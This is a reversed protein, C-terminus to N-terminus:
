RLFINCVKINRDGQALQWDAPTNCNFLMTPPVAPYAAVTEQALWTQCARQGTALYDALSGLCRRRYFGCLPDWGKATPFLSAIAAAPVQDLQQQWRMLVSSELNPLDCALLLVWDVSDAQPDAQLATLGQYFGHLPGRSRPGSQEERLLRVGNPLVAQYREPWPTIVTVRPTCTQAVRCTRPLLPMGRVPLLAKDQGM